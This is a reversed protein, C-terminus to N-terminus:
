EVIKFESRRNKGWAAEGKGKVVPREKGYSVTAIKDVPYGLKVLYAQATKARKEGLVINYESSGREDCHGEILISPNNKLIKYNNQITNKSKSTLVNSDFGYYVVSLKVQGSGSSTMATRIRNGANSSSTAPVINSEMAQQSSTAVLSSENIVEKQTCGLVFLALMLLLTVHILKKM